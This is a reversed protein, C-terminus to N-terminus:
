AVLADTPIDQLRHEGSLLQKNLPSLHGEVIFANIVIKFAMMSDEDLLMVTLLSTIDGYIVIVNSSSEQIHVVTHVSNYYGSAGLIPITEVFAICVGNRDLERRMDSLIQAGTHDSTILLGVWNWSFHLMLSAIGRPLSTDKPAVQYVSQFQSGETLGPDFAGFTLQPFKYLHLLTGILESTKWRIGILLAASKREIGCFYNPSFTSLGTFWNFVTQLVNMESFPLNYVEIGLSTNPLLHSNRNIEEIAFLMALLLQYNQEMVRARQSTLETSTFAPEEKESNT